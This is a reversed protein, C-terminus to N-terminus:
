VLHTTAPVPESFFGTRPTPPMVEVSRLGGDKTRILLLAGCVYCKVPGEYDDYSDRLDVSHGCSLCNLKM